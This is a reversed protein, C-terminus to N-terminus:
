NNVEMEIFNHEISKKIKDISTKPKNINKKEFLNYIHDKIGKGTEKEVILDTAGVVQGTTNGTIIAHAFSGAGLLPNCGSLIISLLIIKNIM